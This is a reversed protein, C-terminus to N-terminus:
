NRQKKKKKGSFKKAQKILHAEDALNKANGVIKEVEPQPMESLAKFTFIGAKNLREELVKGVGKIDKLDDKKDELQAAVKQYRKRWYQWDIIWEVIWGAILGILLGVWFERSM